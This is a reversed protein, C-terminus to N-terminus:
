SNGLNLHKSIIKMQNSWGVQKSVTVPVAKLSSPEFIDWNEIEICTIHEKFKDFGRLGVPTTLIPLGLGLYDANKVNTGAGSTVPNIAFASNKAIKYITEENVTGWVILNPNKVKIEESLANGISGVLNIRFNKLFRENKEIMSMFGTVNSHWSSALFLCENQSKVSYSKSDILFSSGNPVVVIKKENFGFHVTLIEKEIESCLFVKDFFNLYLIEKHKILEALKKNKWLQDKILWELNHTFIFKQNNFNKIAPAFSFHQGFLVGTTKLNNNIFSLLPSNFESTWILTTDIGVKVSFKKNIDQYISIDKPTSPFYFESITESIIRPPRQINKAGVYVLAINLGLDSLHEILKLSRVQGGSTPTVDQAFYNLCIADYFM